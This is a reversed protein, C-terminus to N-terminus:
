GGRIEGWARSGEGFPRSGEGTMPITFTSRSLLPWGPTGTSLM